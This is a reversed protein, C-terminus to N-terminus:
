VCVRRVLIEGYRAHEDRRLLGKDVKEDGLPVELLGLRDGILCHEHRVLLSGVGGVHVMEGEEVSVVAGLRGLRWRCGGEIGWYGDVGRRAVINEWWVRLRLGRRGELLLVIVVLLCLWAQQRGM